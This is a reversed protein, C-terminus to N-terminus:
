SILSITGIALLTSVLCLLMIKYKMSFGKNKLKKM